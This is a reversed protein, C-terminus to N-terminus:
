GDSGMVIERGVLTIGRWIRVSNTRDTRCGVAKLQQTFAMRSLPYREQHEKAWLQYAQWLDASRCWARPHLECYANLFAQLPADKSPALPAAEHLFSSAAKTHRENGRPSPLAEPCCDSSAEVAAHAQERLLHAYLERLAIIQPHAEGLSQSYISLAREAFAFAECLHGQKQEFLALDHLTQGTQPHDQGLGHERLQLARQFFQRTQMEEKGQRMSLVALRNLVDAVRPHEPGLEQERIHLARRYLAEAQEGKEQRTFVDALGILLQAILLHQPGAAQEWIQLARQFLGAALKYKEQRYYLTALGDLPYVVEPHQPGIVQEQIRVARQFLPEAQEYKGQDSYLEALNNLLRASLLPQSAGEQEQIRLARQFVAEAQEHKGQTWYLCGLGNLLRATFLPQQAEGQEQIRLARQFVAEAQEYKGQRLFVWALGDLLAALDPHQSGLVQEEIGLARLYLSEAQKYQSRERLYDAMKRLVQALEQDGGQDQLVTTCTLVHSQLRECQRWAQYTVEPFTANLAKIVRRLWVLQEQESMGEQIVVQVLRHISLTQEEPQRSLLSYACAIGVVRDWELPDCCVAELAPGLHKGGQLFIEEPIADPQLLACVQLLERVAPHRGAAATISLRFTTSVSAPHDQIREGRRQLLADRRTRFLDLYAPLGCRTEELYAGAQDLALPLGGLITVLELVAAYLAPAQIALQCVQEGTAEPPLVKARRLLLLLGEEEEMPLLDLGWALTGLDQRRTTILIAGSRAAPLFRQLLDLDEVNDWILLWQGHTLLWRQVAAVVRQQDRDGPMQFEKAIYLLSSVISEETEAAIWFVASYELAYRYAYELAIQTKGVGGLGHLASSQTPAVVQGIGLQAHLKKLVEERGTFFPNRPLPISWYPSLATLSAELLQRTEHDNLHLCRALELVVGRSQPLFDGREWSGLTNRRVGLQAALQHQTLQGRTRFARLVSGFSRDTSELVM